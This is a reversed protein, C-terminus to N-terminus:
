PSARRELYTISVDATNGPGDRIELDMEDSNTGPGWLIQVAPGDGSSAGTSIPNGSSVATGQNRANLQVRITRTTVTAGSGRSITIHGFASFSEGVPIVWTRLLNYAPSNGLVFAPYDEVIVASPDARLLYQPHPDPAAEHANVAATATGAPDAGVDVAGLVPDGTQGNISQVPAAAAAEAATTYQTHPDLEAVHDIIATAATGAPDAGISAPTVTVEVIPGSENAIVASGDPSTVQDVSGGGGGGPTVWGSQGGDFGSQCTSM